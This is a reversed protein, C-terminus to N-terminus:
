FFCYIIIVVLQTPKKVYQRFYGCLIRERFIWVWNQGTLEIMKNFSDITILM